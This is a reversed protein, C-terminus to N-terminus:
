FFFFFSIRFVPVFTNEPTEAELGLTLVAGINRAKPRLFATLHAQEGDM